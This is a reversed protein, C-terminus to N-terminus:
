PVPDPPPPPTTTGISAIETQLADLEAIAATVIAENGPNAAIQDILVQVRAALDTVSARMEGMERKLDDYASMIDNMRELIEHQHRHMYALLEMTEQHARRSTLYRAPRRKNM